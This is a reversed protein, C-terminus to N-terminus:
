VNHKLFVVPQSSDEEQQQQQQSTSDRCMKVFGPYIFKCAGCASKFFDVVVLTRPGAAQLAQQFEGPTFVQLLSVPTATVHQEVLKFTQIPVNETTNLAATIHPVKPKRDSTPLVEASTTEAQAAAAATAPIFSPWGLAVIRDLQQL